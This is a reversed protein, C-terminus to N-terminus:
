SCDVGMLAAWRYLNFLRWTLGAPIAGGPSETGAIGAAVASTDLFGITPAARVAEALFARQSGLWASEPTEFGIKDRRTLVSDPVLGRLAQRLISKTTGEGDMLMDEPMALVSGALSRDLFPVRSEVSFHMSNRDGHRLLAQLGGQTLSDRLRAKLRVGRLGDTDPEGSPQNWGLGRDGLEQARLGPPVAGPRRRYAADVLSPPAFELGTRLLGSALSAGPAQGWGRLFRLAEAPRGAELLSRARAGAYTRYGAFLEDAGQGDLSVVVGSEHMLQFVRYQAYISTSAFPEGQARIVEDIDRTLEGASPTVTHPQAGTRAVVDDIWRSEDVPTGTPVYSFTQLPFDPELQRVACTIASSDIGGSLAIGVPVDSRLNRRVSALFTERVLEAAQARTLSTDTAISPRWRPAIVQTAGSAIDRVIRGGPQVHSIGEIFSDAGSDYVGSSLYAVATRWNLRPRGDLLALLCGIESGFALVGSTLSYFLPKIGFSDRALTLTGAARDIVALAFMGEFLEIADAGWREWARLVVETDGSSSFPIGESTLRERLEIYNTVEGNYVLTLRGDPTSMPQQGATSRDLVALRASGIAAGSQATPQWVEAGSSDPGRYRMAEISADVAHEIV